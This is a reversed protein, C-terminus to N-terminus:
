LNDCSHAHILRHIGTYAFKKQMGPIPAGMQDELSFLIPQKGADVASVRFIQYNQFFIVFGIFFTRSKKLFTYNVPSDYGKAMASPGFDVYVFDNKQIGKKEAVYKKQRSLQTQFPVDEVVGVATDVKPADSPLRIDAPYLGGIASNSSHNIAKVVPSLYAPWNQSRLTRLLRFLRTKVLHIGYEAFSAKNRGIKVKFFIKEEDFFRRNGRFESGQDTELKEPKLGAQRFIVRFAKRVEEASKNKLTSCFIARSFVDICLLFGTKNAMHFMEALDAQWLIGVGHVKMQRRPIDKRHVKTELLFDDDKQMINLLKARPIKINKEVRLANSFNSLGSFSGSFKPNRWLARIAAESYEDAM